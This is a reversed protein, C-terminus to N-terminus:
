TTSYASLTSLYLAPTSAGFEQPFPSGCDQNVARERHQAEVKGGVESVAILGDIHVDLRSEATNNRTMPAM